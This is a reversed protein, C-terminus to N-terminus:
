TAKDLLRGIKTRISAEPEQYKISGVYRGKGNMMYVLATHDMTYDGDLTPVKQATARYAAMAAKINKESGSLGIIHPDFSSLYLSLREPTDRDPDVTVFLVNLLDAERGLEKVHNSLEYLTTPCVDPCSTYGFFVLMPKGLYDRDTVTRGHHDVLMFPGGIQSPMPVVLPYVLGIMVIGGIILAVPLLRILAEKQRFFTMATRAKPYTRKTGRYM